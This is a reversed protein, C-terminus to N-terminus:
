AGDFAGDCAGDRRDQAAEAAANTAPGQALETGKRAQERLGRLLTYAFTSLYLRLPNGRFSETSM